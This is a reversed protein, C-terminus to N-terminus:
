IRDGCSDDFILIKDKNFALEVDTHPKILVNTSVKAIINADAFESHILLESGLLEVINSNVVFKDTKNGAFEADLVIDEPRVGVRIPHKGNLATECKSLLNVAVEYLNNVFEIDTSNLNVNVKTNKKRKKPKQYYLTDDIVIEEKSFVQANHLIGIDSSPIKEFTLLPARFKLLWKKDVRTYQGKSEAKFTNFLDNIEKVCEVDKVIEIVEDITKELTGVNLEGDHNYLVKDLVKLAHM